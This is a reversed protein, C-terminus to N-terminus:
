TKREKIKEMAYKYIENYYILLKFAYTPSNFKHNVNKYNTAMFRFGADAGVGLWRVIKYEVSIAPEYIFVLSQQDEKKQGLTNLYRYYTKGAGLQLLISLRWKPTKYYAYEAHASLYWLKLSGTAITALGDTSIYNIQEDFYSPSPRLLNFGVGFQLRNAYDVGLKCGSIKARSNSIFSNRSDLKIFPHPKHKLCRQITDLAPQCFLTCACHMFVVCFFAEKLKYM